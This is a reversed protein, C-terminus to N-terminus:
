KDSLGAAVEGARVRGEGPNLFVAQPHLPLSLSLFLLGLSHCFVPILLATVSHAENFKRTRQLGFENVSIILFGGALVLELLVVTLAATCLPQASDKEVQEQIDPPCDQYKRVQWHATREISAGM